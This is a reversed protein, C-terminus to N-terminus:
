SLIPDLFADLGTLRFLRYCQVRRLASYNTPDDRYDDGARDIAARSVLWNVCDFPLDSM